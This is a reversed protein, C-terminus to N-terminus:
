KLETIETDVFVNTGILSSAKHSCDTVKIEFSKIGFDVVEGTLVLDDNLYTTVVIDGVVIGKFRESTGSFDYLLNEM